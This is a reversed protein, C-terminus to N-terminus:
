FSENYEHIEELEDITLENDFKHYIEKAALYASRADEEKEFSGITKTAGNLMIQAVWKKNSKHWYYGKVGSRNFQNEQSSVVRLNEISNDTRSRNIHDICNSSSNDFIDWGPNRALHLVRHKLFKKSKGDITIGAVLYGTNDECFKVERWIETKTEVGNRIARCKIVGDPFLKLRRNKIVFEM